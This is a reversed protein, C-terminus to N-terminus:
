CFYPSTSKPEPNNARPQGKGERGGGGGWGRLVVVFFLFYLDAVQIMFRSCLGMM